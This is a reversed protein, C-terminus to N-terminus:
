AKRKKKLEEYSTFTSDGFDFLKRIKHDFLHLSFNDELKKINLLSRDIAIYKSRQSLNEVTNKATHIESIGSKSGELKEYDIQHNESEMESEEDLPQTNHQLSATLHKGKKFNMEFSNKGPGQNPQHTLIPSIASPLPNGSETSPEENQMNESHFSQDPYQISHSYKIKIPALNSNRGNKNEMSHLSDSESECESEQGLDDGWDPRILTPEVDQCFNLNEKKIKSYSVTIMEVIKQMLQKVEGRHSYRIQDTKPLEGNNPRKILEVVMATLSLTPTSNPAMKSRDFGLRISKSYKLDIEIEHRRKMNKKNLSETRETLRNEFDTTGNKIISAMAKKNSLGYILTERMEHFTVEESVKEIIKSQVEEKLNYSLVRVENRNVEVSVMFRRIPLFFPRDGGTDNSAKKSGSQSANLKNYIENVSGEIKENNLNSKLRVIMELCEREVFQTKHIGFSYHNFKRGVSAPAKQTPSSNKLNASGCDEREKEKEGRSIESQARVREKVGESHTTFDSSGIESHVSGEEAKQEFDVQEFSFGSDLYDSFEELSKFEVVDGNMGRYIFKTEFPDYFEPQEKKPRCAALLEMHSLSLVQKAFHNFYEQTNLVHQIVECVMSPPAVSLHILHNMYKVLESEKTQVRMFEHSPIYLSHLWQEMCLELYANKVAQELIEIIGNDLLNGRNM